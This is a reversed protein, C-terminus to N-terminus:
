SDRAMTKLGVVRLADLKALWGLTRNAAARRTPPLRSLLDSVLMPAEDTLIAILARTEQETCLLHMALQNMRMSSLKRLNNPAANPGLDVICHDDLTCTAYQAFVAFPDERLPHHAPSGVGDARAAARRVSLEQWLAQYSKIVVPWDFMQRARKRGSQGMSRRLDKNVVLRELAATCSALDIATCQGASAVFQDYDDIGVAYRAALDDGASPAPMITPVRFGDVGHRVTDRYGNWDSVVLPLGAAMAEIPTLGFTEQLNDSLSVFIDAASWITHSWDQRQDLFHATVTPCLTSAAHQFDDKQGRNAFWGFHLVHLAKDTRQVVQELAVYMPLPHAKAHYSLRGVFLIAVADDAIGLQGRIGARSTDSAQTLEFVDCDVGLPIVPLEVRPRVEAGFRSRLYECHAGLVHEVAAKASQSTCVLADWNETPAVILAGIADLIAMSCLTHTVGCLSVANSGLRMRHWALEAIGPDPHFLCGPHQLQDLNSYPIWQTPTTSSCHSVFRRFAEFDSPSSACCYLTDVDSHRVFAQLFGQNAVERGFVRADSAGFAALSYHIASNSHM